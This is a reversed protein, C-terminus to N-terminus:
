TKRRASSSSRTPAQKPNSPLIPQPKGDETVPVNMSLDTEEIVGSTEVFSIDEM